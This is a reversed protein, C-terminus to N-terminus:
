KGNKQKRKLKRKEEAMYMQLAQKRKVRKAIGEKRKEWAKGDFGGMKRSLKKLRKRYRQQRLRHRSVKM